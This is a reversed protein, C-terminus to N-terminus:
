EDFTHKTIFQLHQKFYLTTDYLKPKSGNYSFKNQGEFCKIQLMYFYNM